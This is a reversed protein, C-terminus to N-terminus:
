GNKAGMMDLLYNILLEFILYLSIIMLLYQFSFLETKLFIFLYLFTFLASIATIVMNKKITINLYLALFVILFMIPYISIMSMNTLYILGSACIISKIIKM